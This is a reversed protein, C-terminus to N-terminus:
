WATSARQCQLLGGQLGRPFLSVGPTGAGVLVPCRGLSMLMRVSASSSLQSQESSLQCQVTFAPCLVSSLPCHVSYLPEPCHVGSLPRQVSSVPEHRRGRKGEWM